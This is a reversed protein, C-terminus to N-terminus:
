RHVPKQGTQVKLVQYPLRPPPGAKILVRNLQVAPMWLFGKEDIWMEDVFLMRPDAVFTSIKGTPDIKLLQVKDPDSAYINGEADIATGGTTQTDAWFQVHKGREADSVQPDDIWRTEIRSMPGAAPQYYLWRGDASVELMDVDPTRALGFLPPLEKGEVIMPRTGRTSPHGDLTRRMAGTDLNLVVIAGHGIDTFYVNRGNFRFDDYLSGTLAGTDLPYSRVPANTELDFAVFKPGGHDVGPSGTDLVWLLGDPGMRLSFPWVLAHSHDPAKANNWGADPYAWLEGNVWEMLAPADVMIMFIRGDKSVTIDHAPRPLTLASVVVPAAAATSVTAKAAVPPDAPAQGPDALVGSDTGGLFRQMASVVQERSTFVFDKHTGPVKVIEVSALERRVRAISAARFPAMYRQEWDLNKALQAPDGSRVDFFTEAYIALAPSRVETYHPRDTLVTSLVEHTVSDTMRPWVTGDSQIVVLDRVYAEFRSMDSVAPFWVTKEYERYADLSRMASAPALFDIPLSKFADALAPGGWDYAGELYVISDVREPHTGAMATIDNGGLSWGALHAKNIGLRDMLGCLDETRTTTDFPGKADSRGHGRLDYAIVRFHDTFAPALDDFVHANDLGGHILILVPGLGGWDLYHLRIGNATVFGGKHAATDSWAASSQTKM